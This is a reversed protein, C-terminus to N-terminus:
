SDWIPCDLWNDPFGMSRRPIDPYEALLDYLCIKWNSDPAVYKLLYQIITLITFIKIGQVQVPNHWEPNKRERPIKPSYGLTRNWIRAHHACMNRIGNLSRLWSHFVVDTTNYKNSVMRKLNADIGKFFTLLTGMSMIEVVMWLPLDNHNDGYKKIFHKVFGEQSRKSETRIREVLQYHADTLIHPFNKSEKYEFAGYKHSFQYAIDTRIANEIYEIADLIILRLKRDFEYRQLILDLTTGPKYTDDPQRFPYLYGSLRYYNINQLTHILTSSDAILGRNILQDAQQEFTLPPKTYKL